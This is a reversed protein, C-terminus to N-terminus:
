EVDSGIIATHTVLVDQDRYTVASITHLTQLVEIVADVQSVIARYQESELDGGAILGSAGATRLGAHVWPKILRVAGAWDFSVFQGAEDKARTVLSADGAKFQSAALMRQAASDTIAVVAVNESLAAHPTVPSQEPLPYYYLAGAASERMQPSPIEIEPVEEPKLAHLDALLKNITTRYAALASRLLGADKVGYILAPEPLPMEDDFPLGLKDGAIRLEDDIVLAFQGDFSPLFKNRTTEGLADIAPFLLGAVQDYNARQEADLRPVGFKEWYKRALGYWRALMEVQAPDSRGRVTWALLPSGGVHSLLGLPQDTVLWPQQGFDFTFSEYGTANSFQIASVAGAPPILTKLDAAVSDLDRGLEARADDDVDLEELAERGAAALETMDQANAGVHQMFDQSMYSIGTVPRDGYPELREVEPRTRLAPGDGLKELPEFSPSLCLLLFDDRVGLSIKLELEQLAEVLEDYEGPETEFESFPIQDWPIQDGELSLTLYDAGDFTQRRFRGKWDENQALALNALVELRKLQTKARESNSLRFGFMLTPVDLDDRGDNLVELIAVIRAQADSFEESDDDDEDASARQLAQMVPAFRSAGNIEAALEALAGLEASGYFFHEQGFLDALLALLEQNEPLQLLQGAMYLQSNPDTLATHVQQRFHQALPLEALKKWARSDALRRWEERGRFSGVYVAADAPAWDLSKGPLEAAPIATPSGLIALSLLLAWPRRAWAFRRDHSM